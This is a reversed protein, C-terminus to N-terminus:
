RKLADGKLFNCTMMVDRYIIGQHAENLDKLFPVLTSPAVGYFSKFREVNEKVMVQKLSTEDYGVFRLGDFLLIEENLSSMDRDVQYYNGRELAVRPPAVTKAQRNVRNRSEETKHVDYLYGDPPPPRRRRPHGAAGKKASIPNSDVRGRDERDSSLVDEGSVFISSRGRRFTNISATRRFSFTTKTHSAENERGPGESSSSSNVDEDDSASAAPTHRFASTHHSFMKQM